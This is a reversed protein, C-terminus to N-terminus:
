MQDETLLQPGYTPLEDEVEIKKPKKHEPVIRELSIRLMGNLLGAGKVEIQDNLSFTRTFNRMGIGKFVFNDFHEKMNGKIVLTDDNLEIEIEQKSFGAVAMEILYKNEDVKRINYPPFNPTSAKTLNAQKIIRDFLSEYGVFFNDLTKRDIYM